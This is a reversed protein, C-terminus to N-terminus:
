PKWKWQCHRRWVCWHLQDRRTRTLLQSLFSLTFSSKRWIEVFVGPVPKCTAINLVQIDLHLKVGTQSEVLNERIFEGM